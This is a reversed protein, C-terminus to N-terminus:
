WRMNDMRVDGPMDESSRCKQRCPPTALPRGISSPYSIIIPTRCTKPVISSGSEADPTRMKVRENFPARYPTLGEHNAKTKQRRGKV